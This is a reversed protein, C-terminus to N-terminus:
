RARSGCEPLRWHTSLGTSCGSRWRDKEYDEGHQGFRVVLRRDATRFGYATSWAGGKLLTIDRVTEYRGRLFRDVAAINLELKAM